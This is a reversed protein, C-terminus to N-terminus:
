QWFRDFRELDEKPVQMFVNVNSMIEVARNLRYRYDQKLKSFKKICSYCWVLFFFVFLAAVLFLVNGGSLVLEFFVCCSVLLGVIGICLYILNIKRDQRYKAVAEDRMKEYSPMERIESMGGVALPDVSVEEQNQTEAQTETFDTFQEQEFNEM